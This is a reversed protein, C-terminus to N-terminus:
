TATCVRRGARTFEPRVSRGWGRGGTVLGSGRAGVWVCRLAPQDAPTAM